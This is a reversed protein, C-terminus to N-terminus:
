IHRYKAEQCGTYFASKARCTFYGGMFINLYMIKITFFKFLSSVISEAGIHM